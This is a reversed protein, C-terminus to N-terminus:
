LIINVFSKGKGNVVNGILCEPRAITRCACFFDWAEVGLMGRSSNLRGRRNVKM